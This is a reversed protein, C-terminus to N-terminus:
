QVRKKHKTMYLLALAVTKNRRLDLKNTFYLRFRNSYGTKNNKTNIIITDM